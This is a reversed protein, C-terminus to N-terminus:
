RLAALVAARYQRSCPVLTGDRLQLQCDGRPRALV